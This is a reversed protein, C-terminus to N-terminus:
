THISIISTCFGGSQSNYAHLIRSQKFGLQFTVNQSLETGSNINHRISGNSRPSETFLSRKQAVAQYIREMALCCIRLLAITPSCCHSIRTKQTTQASINYALSLTLQYYTRYPPRHLSSKFAHLQLIEVTLLQQWPIAPSSVAPQFLRLPHQLSKHITSISTTSYNSTTGLRTYLHDIFGNEL